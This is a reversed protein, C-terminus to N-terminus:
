RFVRDFIVNYMKTFESVSETVRRLKILESNKEFLVARTLPKRKLKHRPYATPYDCWYSYSFTVWGRAHIPQKQSEIVYRIKGNDLWMYDKVVGEHQQNGSKYLVEEGIELDIPDKTTKNYFRNKELWEWNRTRNFNSSKVKSYNRHKSYTLGKELEEV